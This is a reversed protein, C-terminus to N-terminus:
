RYDNRCAGRGNQIPLIPTMDIRRHFVLNHLIANHVVMGDNYDYFGTENPTDQQLEAEDKLVGDVAKACGALGCALIMAM